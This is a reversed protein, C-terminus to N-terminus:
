SEIRLLNNILSVVPLAALRVLADQVSAEHALHTTIVLEATQEEPDNDKQLVSALSIGGEGFVHAIQALVGPRDAVTLRLYYRSELGDIPEVKLTRQDQFMREPPRQGRIRRTTEIIDGLVASTTPKRGAGMGHFLVKGSLNGEVEVANYVGDVKALMHESPVLAPYLRAQIAGGELTAIALSKIAYGLEDAYQFDKAELSTIGQRYIEEPAVRHHYALSSLIALKYGADFGEVDSTPDAEAYGLDQAEKLAEGFSTHHQAMRTLIYNTTGNIIGRISFVDNALLENMLCGVIPIGGGVSAEFLLNVGHKEALVSLEPGAQAMVEKNATVVHKGSSLSRELYAAAPQFGGMVEVVIHIGSDDLIEEPNTTVIGRPLAPDRPKGSDRVLAKKLRIAIGAKSRIEESQELLAAAVGSGVVGLGM